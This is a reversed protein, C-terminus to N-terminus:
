RMAARVSGLDAARFATSVTAQGRVASQVGSKRRGTISLGAHSQLTLGADSEKANSMHPAGLLAGIRCPGLQTGVSSQQTM